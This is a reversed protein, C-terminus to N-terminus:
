LLTIADVPDKVVFENATQLWPRLQHAFFGDRSQATRQQEEGNERGVCVMKVVTEVEVVRVRNLVVRGDTFYFVNRKEEM